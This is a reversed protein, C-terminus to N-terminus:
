KKAPTSKRQPIVFNPAVAPMFPFGRNNALNAFKASCTTLQRDCGPVLTVVRGVSLGPARDLTCVVHGTGDIAASTVVGARLPLNTVGTTAALGMWGLWGLAFWDAAAFGTPLGAGNARTIDAITVSAGSCASITGNFTWDSLALGCRPRFLNTGCTPSMLQRPARRAFLANAGIVKQSIAPGDRTPTGLEGKWLARLNSFTGDPAFDARYITLYGRAALQGPLWNEWPGGAFWRATFTCSDDQLDLSAVLKDFDCANYTWTFGGLTAGSGYNTLRWTQSVGNYDLDIQFGFWAGPLRGLTLGRTEGSPPTYEAAVERWALTSEAVWDSGARRFELVLEDSVHRALMALAVTTTSAGWGAALTSALNLTNGALGTARALELSRVDFLALTTNSGLTPPATFVLAGAGAAANAALRGIAQSEAVWHPDAQGARRQWWGLLGAAEAGSKFKFSAQLTREPTQPYFATSKQRGPGVETREVETVATGPTPPTSGEPIWPFVAAAFGSATQFTTDSTAAPQLAYAAPSDEEFNFDATVLEGNKGAMSPPSVLRGYLLPAHFDYGALSGPNVAYSGWGATWAVVLGSGIPLATAAPQQFPWVPVLIIEDQAQQTANRLAVFDAAKMAATWELSCRLALDQPRRSSRGTLGRQTDVPLKVGLRVPDDTNPAYPILWCSQSNFTLAIM